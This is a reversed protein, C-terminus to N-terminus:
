AGPDAREATVEITQPDHPVSRAAAAALWSPALTAFVSGHFENSGRRTEVDIVAGMAEAMDAGFGGTTVNLTDVFEIPVVQGVGGDAVETIDAGDLTYRNELSTAGAFATGDGDEGAGPVSGLAGEFTRGPRPVDVPPGQPPRARSACAALPVLWIWRM